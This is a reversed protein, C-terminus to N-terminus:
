ASDLPLIGRIVDEEREMIFGRREFMGIIIENDPLMEAVIRKIGRRRAIKICYDTLLSGVGRGQWPDGVVVALEAEQLNPDS